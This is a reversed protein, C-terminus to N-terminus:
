HICPLSYMLDLMGCGTLVGCETLYGGDQGFDRLKDLM